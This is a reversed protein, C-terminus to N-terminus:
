QRPHFRSRRPNGSLAIKNGIVGSARCRRLYVEVGDALSMRVRLVPLLKWQDGDSFWNELWDIDCVQAWGLDGYTHAFDVSFPFAPTLLLALFTSFKEALVHYWDNQSRIIAVVDYIMVM